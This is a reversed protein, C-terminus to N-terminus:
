PPTLESIKASKRYESIGGGNGCLKQLRSGLEILEGTREAKPSILSLEKLSTGLPITATKRCLKLIETGRKNFALVRAFPPEFCDDETIGLAARLVARRVRSHTFNRSKVDSYIDELSQARRTAQYLRGSLRRCGRIVSFDEESMMSLRYLLAKEGKEIFCFQEEDIPYDLLEGPNEGKKLLRRIHSASAFCDKTIDSDHPVTRKVALPKIDTDGLARLYELALTNNQGSIIKGAKKCVAGAAQPYTMGLSMKEKIELEKETIEDLAEKLANVCDTEAGFSLIDICGLRKLVNMGARAFDRAASLSYQPALELVLDAGGCVAAQARDYADLIAVDGRQVFSGSMVVAVHTAGAERTKEIHFQHGRHFPNYEAIIGATKM